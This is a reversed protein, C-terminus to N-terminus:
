LYGESEGFKRLRPMCQRQYFSSLTPIPLGFEESLEKWSNEPPLRRLILIQCTVAPSGKIHSRLEGNPDSEAWARVAELLPPIDPSAILNDVPDFESDEGLRGFQRPPATIKIDEREKIFFDQLRRRLYANLWTAVGAADPDYPDATDGECLNRCFYVWTQQLADAYYPKNEKWLKPAVLRIIKTLNRQRVPSGRDHGCAERVLRRLTEELESM